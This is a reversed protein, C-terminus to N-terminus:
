SVEDFGHNDQSLSSSEVIADARYQSSHAQAAVPDRRQRIEEPHNARYKSASARAAVPHHARYKSASARAAVPHNARYKRDSARAAVPDRQRKNENYKRNSAARDRKPKAPKDTASLGNESEDDGDHRLNQLLQM